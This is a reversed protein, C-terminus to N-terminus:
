KLFLRALRLDDFTYKNGLLRRTPSLPLSPDTKRVKEFAKKIEALQEPSPKLHSFDILADLERATVLQELHNIITGVIVGRETAMQVLSLKRPLLSKTNALSAGAVVKVSKKPGRGVAGGCVKLFNAHMKNLESFALRDFAERAEKSQQRLHQDKALVEPHVELARQNFGLLYLGSLSRVRSLAVYGQGYEFASRLDIVAADLSMGQSKHVTIAWALRLPIQTIKALVRVGETVAWEVPEVEIQRGNRTKIIPRRNLNSFAVVEGTTGNVYKGEPSNKTFMVKAGLKLTLLEPSLCSKKLGEALLPAGYNEMKYVTPQDDPLRALEQENIRDVDINHPFLKTVQDDAEFEGCRGQLCERVKATVMGRRVATLAALYVQDEQRHQESLYCVLPRARQWAPSNFAFIAPNSKGDENRASIPPLQFFDGVLVVQLGGFPETSQRLERCVWEVSALTDASLMSIEDIILVKANLVRKVVREKQTILDLDHSSIVSKIGIGSWAHITLGGIHTAAIGTSATIAPEVGCARLYKVYSNVTHTKGSGPEGTLFVNGGTKLIELAQSQTM